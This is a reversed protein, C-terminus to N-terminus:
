FVVLKRFDFEAGLHSFFISERMANLLSHHVALINMPFILSLVVGQTALFLKLFRATVSIYCLVIKYIM